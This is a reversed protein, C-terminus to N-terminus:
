KHLEYVNMVCIMVGEMAHNAYHIANRASSLLIQLIITDKNACANVVGCFPIRNIMAYLVNLTM